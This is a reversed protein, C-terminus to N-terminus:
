AARGREEIYRLCRAVASGMEYGCLYSATGHPRVPPYGPLPYPETRLKLGDFFGATMAQRKKEPTHDVEDPIGTRRELDRVAAKLIAALSELARARDVEQRLDRTSTIRGRSCEAVLEGEYYVEAAGTINITTLTRKEM